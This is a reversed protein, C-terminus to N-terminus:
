FRVRTSSRSRKKGDELSNQERIRENEIYRKISKIADVFGLFSEESSPLGEGSFDASYIHFITRREGSRICKMQLVSTTQFKNTTCHLMKIFYGHVTIKEKEKTPWYPPVTDDKETQHPNILCIIIESGAEWVKFYNNM